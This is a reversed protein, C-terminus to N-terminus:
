KNLSNKLQDIYKQATQAQPTNGHVEVLREWYHIAKLTDGATFYVIGSNYLGQPHKPNIKLADGMHIKASDINGSNFYSVALDILVNPDEKKISIATLYRKIAEPFRQIDYYSNGMKVNLDYNMPDAELDSKLQVISQMIDNLRQSDPANQQKQASKAALKEQYIAKNNDLVIWIIALALVLSAIIIKVSNGSMNKVPVAESTKKSAVKKPKIEQGCNSCFNSNEEVKTGCASCYNPKM